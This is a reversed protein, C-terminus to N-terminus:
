LRFFQARNGFFRLTVVRGTRNVSEERASFLSPRTTAARWRLWMRTSPVRVEPEFQRVLEAAAEPDGLRVRRVLGSFSEDFEAM